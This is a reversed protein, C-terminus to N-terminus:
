DGVILMGGGRPDTGLTGDGRDVGSVVDSAAPLQGYIIEDITLVELNGAAEHVAVADLFTRFTEETPENGEGTLNHM